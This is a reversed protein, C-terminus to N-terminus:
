AMAKSLRRYIRINPRFLRMLFAFKSSTFQKQTASPLDGGKQFFRSLDSDTLSTADLDKQNPDRLVYGISRWYSFQTVINQRYNRHGIKLRERNDIIAKWIRFRHLPEYDVETMIFNKENLPRKGGTNNRLFLVSTLFLSAFRVRIRLKKTCMQLWLTGSM